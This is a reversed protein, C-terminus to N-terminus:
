VASYATQKNERPSYAAYCRKLSLPKHPIILFEMKMVHRHYVAREAEVIQLFCITIIVFCKLLHSEGNDKLLVRKIYRGKKGKRDKRLSLVFMEREPAPWETVSTGANM